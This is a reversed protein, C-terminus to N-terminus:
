GFYLHLYKSISKLLMMWVIVDVCRLSRLSMLFIKISISFYILLRTEIIFQSFNYIAISPTGERAFINSCFFLLYRPSIIFLIISDFPISLLWKSLINIDGAVFNM